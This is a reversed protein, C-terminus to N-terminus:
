LNRDPCKAPGAGSHVKVLSLENTAKAFADAMSAANCEHRAPVSEMGAEALAHSIKFNDTGLLGFCKRAAL